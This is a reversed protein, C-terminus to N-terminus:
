TKNTIKEIEKIFKFSLANAEEATKAESYIRLIPETNSPRIQVWRNRWLIKVGDTLDIKQKKYKEIIADLVTTVSFEKLEFKNKSQFYQPLSAYLESITKGSLALQQLILAIGLPADRGLHLDSLIIGGNGEGGIAAKVEKMKQAVFIEGVKTRIVETDYKKAIDDVVKSVSTNVVVPGNKKQLVYSVALALTYEEGLPKGKESVIALCDVDPDVAFGIDAKVSKVKKCLEKLNEPLPEPARPFLGTPEENIVVVDCGLIELLQPLITGGAGNVCDIVVKFKKEVIKEPEIVSLKLISKIHHEIAEDYLEIKGVQNWAVNQFNNKEVFKIVKKGQTEDLFIGSSDIFKLANWEIPNHSATITIGGRAKLHEVAMQITPTPCIGVDIVDCGSALLGSFVAHKVMPGTVRSDRGVVVKGNGLYTGFAQAFNVIVQPTLGDGVVGRVGLISTMLKSV